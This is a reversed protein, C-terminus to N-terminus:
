PKTAGTHAATPLLGDVAVRVARRLRQEAWEYPHDGAIQQHFVALSLDSLLTVADAVDVSEAIRGRRKLAELLRAMPRDFAEENLKVLGADFDGARRISTAVLERWVANDLYELYNRMEVLMLAVIARAPDAPPRAILRKKREEVLARDAAYIAVMLDAKAPYYAYVTPVSVVARAAVDEMSTANYGREAFLSAAAEFIADRRERKQRERLQGM